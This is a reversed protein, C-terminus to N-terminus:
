AEIEEFPGKPEVIYAALAEAEIMRKTDCASEWDKCFHVHEMDDWDDATEEVDEWSAIIAYRTKAPIMKAIAELSEDSLM